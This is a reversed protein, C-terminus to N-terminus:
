RVQVFRVPRRSQKSVAFLDPIGVLPTRMVVEFFSGSTNGVFHIRTIRVTEQRYALM